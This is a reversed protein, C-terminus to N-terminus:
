LYNRVSFLQLFTNNRPYHLVDVLKPYSGHLDFTLIYYDTDNQYLLALFQSAISYDALELQDIAAPDINTVEYNPSYSEKVM